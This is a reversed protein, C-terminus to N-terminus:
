TTPNCWEQRSASRLLRAEESPVLSLLLGNKPATDQKTARSVVQPDLPQTDIYIYIYIYRNM